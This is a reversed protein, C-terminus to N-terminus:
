DDIQTNGTVARVESKGIGTINGTAHIRDVLYQSMAPSLKPKRVIITVHEAYRAFFLARQGASNAGVLVLLRQGRYMAAESLAAGYYIGAGLFQSVGPAELE